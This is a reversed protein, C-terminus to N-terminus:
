IASPVQHGALLGRYHGRLHLSMMRFVSAVYPFPKLSTSEGDYRTPIAVEHCTVGAQRGIVIMEADFTFNNALSQFPVRELFSRAYLMYGSHFEALRTGFLRNELFTLSRNAWYRGAPMGGERAGGALMRSGQVLEATGELLPELLGPLKEPPYQGDAHVVAFFDCGLDLGTQLGTKQAGGYGRNEPHHVVRTNERAAAVRDAVSGTADRSADNVIVVIVPVGSVKDPIRCVTKELVHEAGYAPVVVCVRKEKQM